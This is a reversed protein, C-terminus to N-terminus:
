KDKKLRVPEGEPFEVSALGLTRKITSVSLTSPRSKGTEFAVITPHAVSAELALRIRSWGLLKRAARIQDATIMETEEADGIMFAASLREVSPPLDQPPLRLACHAGGENM